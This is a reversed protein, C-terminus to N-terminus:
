KLIAHWFMQMEQSFVTHISVASTIQSFSSFTSSFVSPRFHMFSYSHITSIKCFFFLKEFASFYFSSHAWFASSKSLQITERASRVSFNYCVFSRWYKWQSRQTDTGHCDPSRRLLYAPSKNFDSAPARGMWETRLLCSTLCPFLLPSPQCVLPRLAFGYRLRETVYAVIIDTPWVTLKFTPQNQRPNLSQGLWKRLGILLLIPEKQQCMKHLKM